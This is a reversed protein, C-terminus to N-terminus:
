KIIEKVLVTDVNKKIEKRKERLVIKEYPVEVTKDVWTIKEVKVVRPKTIVKITEFPVEVRKVIEKIKTVEV